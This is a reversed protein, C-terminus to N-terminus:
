VSVASLFRKFKIRAASQALFWILFLHGGPDPGFDAWFWGNGAPLTLGSGGGPGGPPLPWSVIFITDLVAIYTIHM